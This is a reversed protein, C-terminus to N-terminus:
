TILLIRNWEAGKLQLFLTEMEESITVQPDSLKQLDGANRPEHGRRRDEFCAIVGSQGRSRDDCRQRGRERLLVSIM